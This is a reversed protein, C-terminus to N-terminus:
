NTDANIGEMIDIIEYPNEAAQIKEYEFVLQPESGTVDVSVNVRRPNGDADVNAFAAEVEEDPETWEMVSWNTPDLASILEDATGRVFDGQQTHIYLVEGTNPSYFIWRVFSM